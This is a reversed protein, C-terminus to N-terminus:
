PNKVYYKQILELDLNNVFIKSAKSQISILM